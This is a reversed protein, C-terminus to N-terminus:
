KRNKLKEEVSRNVANNFIEEIKERSESIEIDHQDFKALYEPNNKNKLWMSRNSATLLNSIILIASIVNMGWGLYYKWNDYNDILFWGIIQIISLGIIWLLFNTWFKRASWDYTESYQMKM